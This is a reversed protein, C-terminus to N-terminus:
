FRTHKRTGQIAPQLQEFGRAEGRDAAQQYYQRATELDKEVYQGQHFCQGISLDDRYGFVYLTSLQLARTLM